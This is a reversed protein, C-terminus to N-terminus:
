FPVKQLMSIIDAQYLSLPVENQGEFLINVTTDEMGIYLEAATLSKLTVDCSNYIRVEVDKNTGTLIYGDEDYYNQDNGIHIQKDTIGSVDITLPTGDGEAFAAPLIAAIMLIAFLISLLTKKM